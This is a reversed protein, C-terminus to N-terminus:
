GNPSGLTTRPTMTVKRLDRLKKLLSKTAERNDLCYDIIAHIKALEAMAFELDNQSGCIYCGPSTLCDLLDAEMHTLPELNVLLPQQENEAM